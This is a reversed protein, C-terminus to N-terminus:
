FLQNLVNSLQGIPLIILVKGSTINIVVQDADTENSTAIRGDPALELGDINWRLGRSEGLARTTPFIGIPSEIGLNLCLEGFEEGWLFAFENKEILFISQDPNKAVTNFAALHHDMRGGTFGVCLYYQAAVTALTKEFDTRDQDHILVKNVSQYFPMKETASDLDGIVAQPESLANALGGDACYVTNAMGTITSVQTNEVPGAGILTVGHEHKFRATEMIM